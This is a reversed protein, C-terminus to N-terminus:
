DRAFGLARLLYRGLTANFVPNMHDFDRYVYAGGIIPFCRTADCFFRSFDLLQVRAGAMRAAQASTDAPFAGSRPVACARVSVRKQRRVSAVCAATSFRVRPVDRVVYIRRVSAPVRRWISLYGNVTLGRGAANSTVVTRVSPHRRLWTLAERSHRRCRAPIPAPAPYVETSFSCGPTTISVAQRGVAKMAVDAAARWHGAHSDGILALRPPGDADLEGFACPGIARYSGGTRPRCPHEPPTARVQGPSPFVVKRLRPNTCSRAAAGFCRPAGFVGVRAGYRGRDPAADSDATVRWRVVGHPLRLASPLFTVTKVGRRGSARVCKRRGAVRLCVLGAPGRTRVSLRLESGVQGFSVARIDPGRAADVADAHVPPSFLGALLAASLAAVTM